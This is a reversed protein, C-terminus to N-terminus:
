AATLLVPFHHREACRMEDWERCWQRRGEQERQLISSRSRRRCGPMWRTRGECQSEAFGPGSFAKLFLYIVVVVRGREIEEKASSSEEADGGVGTWFSPLPIAGAGDSPLYARSTAPVYSLGRLSRCLCFSLGGLLAVWSAVWLPSQIAEGGNRRGSPAKDRASHPADSFLFLHRLPLYTWAPGPGQAKMWMASHGRYDIQWNGMARKIQLAQLSDVKEPHQIYVSPFYITKIIWNICPQNGRRGVSGDLNLKM